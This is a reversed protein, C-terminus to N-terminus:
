VHSPQLLLKESGHCHFNIIIRCKNRTQSNPWKSVDIKGESPIMIIGNDKLIM